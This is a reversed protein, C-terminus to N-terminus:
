ALCLSRTPPDNRSTNGPTPLSFASDQPVTRGNRMGNTIRGSRRVYTTTVYVLLNNHAPVLPHRSKLRRANASSPCILVSHLPHGPEMARCALPLTAGSRRLEAPQIGALIPLNDAPAPLLCGSVIRLAYNIATNIYRLSCQPMLCSVTSQPQICWPWLPQKCLQQELV